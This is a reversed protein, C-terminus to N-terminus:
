AAENKEHYEDLEKKVALEIEQYLQKFKRDFMLINAAKHAHYISSHTKNMFRGLQSLGYEKSEVLIKCICKRVDCLYRNRNSSLIDEIIVGSTKCATELVIEKYNVPYMYKEKHQKFRRILRTIESEYIYPKQLEDTVAKVLEDRTMDNPKTQEIIGFYVGQM